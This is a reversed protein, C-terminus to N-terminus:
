PQLSENQLDFSVLSGFTLTINFGGFCKTTEFYNSLKADSKLFM